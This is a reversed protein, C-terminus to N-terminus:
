PCVPVTALHELSDPMTLLKRQGALSMFCSQHSHVDRRRRAESNEMRKTRPQLCNGQITRGSNEARPTLPHCYPSQAQQPCYSVMQMKPSQLSLTEIHLPNGQTQSLPSLTRVCSGSRFVSSAPSRAGEEARTFQIFM